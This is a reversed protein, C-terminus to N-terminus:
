TLNGARPLVSSTERDAARHNELATRDWYACYYTAQQQKTIKNTTLTCISERREKEAWFNERYSREYFFPDGSQVYLIHM